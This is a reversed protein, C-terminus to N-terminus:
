KTPKKTKQQTQWIRNLKSKYNRELNVLNFIKKLSRIDGQLRHIEILDNEIEILDQKRKIEPTVIEKIFKDFHPSSSLKGIASLISNLRDEEGKNVIIQDSPYEEVILDDM